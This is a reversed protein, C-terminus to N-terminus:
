WDWGSHYYHNVQDFSISSIREFIMTGLDILVSDKRFLIEPRPFGVINCTLTVDSGELFCQPNGGPAEVEFSLSQVEVPVSLLIYSCSVKSTQNSTQRNGPVTVFLDPLPTSTGLVPNTFIASYEGSTESTLNAIMLTFTYPSQAAPDECPNNVTYMAGSTIDTNMFSWQVTPCPDSDVMATVVLDLTQPPAVILNGVIRDPVATPNTLTLPQPMPAVLLFLKTIMHGSPVTLKGPARVELIWTRSDRFQGGGFRNTVVCQYIGSHMVQPDAIDLGNGNVSVGEPVDGGNYYWTVTPAPVGELVCTYTVSGGGVLRERDVTTEDM